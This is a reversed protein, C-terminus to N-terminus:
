RGRRPALQPPVDLGEGVASFVGSLKESLLVLSPAAALAALAAMLGYEISSTARNDTLFAGLTRSLGTM